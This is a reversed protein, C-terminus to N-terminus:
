EYLKRLLEDEIIRAKLYPIILKYFLCIPDVSYISGNEYYKRSCCGAGCYKKLECDKCKEINEYNCNAFYNIIESNLLEDLPKNYINGLCFQPQSSLDDCPFVDGNPTVGIINLGAGCPSNSCMYRKQGTIITKLLYYVNKENLKIGKKLYKEESEIISKTAIFVEENSLSLHSNKNGRGGKIFYNFSFDYINNEVFFDIIEPIKNYNNKNLVSLVNIKVKNKNLLFISKKIIDISNIDNKLIRCKNSKTDDGDISISIKVDNNNLYIIKEEDLLVCNTQIYYDIKDHVLLRKYHEIIKKIIDFCLLPEGGHFLVKIEKNDNIRRLEDIIKLSTEFTMYENNGEGASAYCYECKMNCDTTLNLVILKPIRLM